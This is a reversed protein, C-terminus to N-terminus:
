LRAGGSGALLPMLRENFKERSSESGNNGTGLDPTM